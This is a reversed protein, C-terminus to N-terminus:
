NLYPDSINLEALISTELTEMQQAAVETQHDYGLLHLVGHVVMHAYHNSLSKQQEIAENILVQHCIIVDGLLAIDLGPQLAKPRDGDLAKLSEDDLAKLSEDDLVRLTEDDFAKLQEGYLAKMHNSDALAPFAEFPFSLVNTAKDQHRYDRNLQTIEDIGVVRVTLEADFSAPNVMYYATNAWETLQEASPPEELEHLEHEELALQVDVTLGSNCSLSVETM